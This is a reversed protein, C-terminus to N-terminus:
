SLRQWQIGTAPRRLMFIPHRETCTRLGNSLFNHSPLLDLLASLPLTFVVCQFGVERNRSMPNERRLLTSQVHPPSHDHPSPACPGPDGLSDANHESGVQHPLRWFQSSSGLRRPSHCGKLPCQFRPSTGAGPM